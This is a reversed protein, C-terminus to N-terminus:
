EAGRSGEAARSEHAFHVGGLLQAAAELVGGAVSLAKDSVTFCHDPDARPDVDGVKFGPTVAIGARLLGRLVGDITTVVPEGEVQAVVDGATVRDGIIALPAFMGEVPARLVREAGRGGIEGPIGTNPLAAGEHIVRGLTHGRMTEVVAHADVGAVFGPGLAIVAPADTLRTGLNRKAVIADVLVLPLLELRVSADPDVLVPIRRRGLAHRAETATAVRVGVVGEVVAEGDWVAEAFAVTRRVVTPVAIETMVVDFGARHLRLAVGTALDGAGKVLALPRGATGVAAAGSSM